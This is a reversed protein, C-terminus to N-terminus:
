EPAMEVMAGEAFFQSLTIGFGNCIRELTSINYFDSKSFFTIELITKDPFSIDVYM